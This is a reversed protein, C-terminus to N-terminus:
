ARRKLIIKRGDLLVKGHLQLKKISRIATEVRMGTLDALEQRTYPIIVQGGAPRIHRAIYGFLKELRHEPGYFAIETLMMNKYRLRDCLIATFKLHIDVHDRLLDFFRAKELRLISGPERCVATAPYPFGCFLPPEGFSEGKYFVGQIFERGDQSSTVIKVVGEEIQYYYAAPEGERFVSDGKRLRLATGGYKKLLTRPIPM